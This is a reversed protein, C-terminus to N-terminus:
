PRVAPAVDLDPFDLPLDLGEDGEELLEDLHVTYEGFRKIGRTLYPSLAAVDARRVPYGERILTRLIGTLDRVNQLIVANAVLGNYKIRKEQEEPDNEAIVQASAEIDFGWFIRNATAWIADLLARLSLWVM